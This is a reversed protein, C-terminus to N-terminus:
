ERKTFKSTAGEALLWVPPSGPCEIEAQIPKWSPPTKRKRLLKISLSCRKKSGVVAIDFHFFALKGVFHVQGNKLSPTVPTGLERSLEASDAIFREAARHAFTHTLIFRGALPALVPDLLLLMFGFLPLLMWRRWYKRM